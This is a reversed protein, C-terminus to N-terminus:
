IWNTILIVLIIGKKKERGEKKMGVYTPISFEELVKHLM